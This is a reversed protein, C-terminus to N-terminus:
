WLQSRLRPSCWRWARAACGHLVNPDFVFLRDLPVQDALKYIVYLAAALKLFSLLQMALPPSLQLATLLLFVGGGEVM